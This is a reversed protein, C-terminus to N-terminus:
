FCASALVFGLAIVMALICSEAFRLLGAITDGSFMDRLSNTIAIGPILLMINGISIKDISHGLGFYVALNALWGGLFSCAFAVLFSNKIYKNFSKSLQNILIAIIASVVADALNGGFFLSFSAAILAYVLCQQWPNMRTNPKMKHLRVKIEEITLPQVCIDRSLQNLRELKTFDISQGSIRRTQTVQGYSAQSITVIISSTITFVDVREAGFATCMRKISDEVRNIEAGCILMEEGIELACSLYQNAQELQLCETVSM